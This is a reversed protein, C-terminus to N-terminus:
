FYSCQPYGLNQPCMFISPPSWFLGSGLLVKGKKMILSKIDVVSEGRENTEVEWSATFHLKLFEVGSLLQTGIDARGLVVQISEHM